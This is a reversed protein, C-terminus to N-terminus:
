LFPIISSIVLDECRRSSSSPLDSIPQVQSVGWKCGNSSLTTSWKAHLRWRSQYLQVQIELFVSVTPCTSWHQQLPCHSTVISAWPVFQCTLFLSAISKRRKKTKNILIKLETQTIYNHAFSTHVHNLTKHTTKWNSNFNWKLLNTNFILM